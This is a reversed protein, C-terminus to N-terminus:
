NRPTIDYITPGKCFKDKGKYQAEKNKEAIMDPIGTKLM